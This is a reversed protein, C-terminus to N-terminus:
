NPPMHKIKNPNSLYDIVSSSDSSVLFRFYAYTHFINCWIIFNGLSSFSSNYLRTSYEMYSLWGIFCISYMLKWDFDLFKASVCHQSKGLTPCSLELLRVTYVTEVYKPRCHNVCHYSFSGYLDAFRWSTKSAM